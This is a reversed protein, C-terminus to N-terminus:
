LHSIIYNYINIALSHFSKKKKLSMALSFVSKCKKKGRDWEMGTNGKQCTVCQDELIMGDSCFSKIVTQMKNKQAPM